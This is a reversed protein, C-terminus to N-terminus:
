ACSVGAEMEQARFEGVQCEVPTVAEDLAARLERRIRDGEVAWDGFMTATFRWPERELHEMLGRAIGEIRRLREFEAQSIVVNGM